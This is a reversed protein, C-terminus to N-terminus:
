PAIQWLLHTSGTVITFTVSGGNLTSSTISGGSGTPMEVTVGDITMEVSGTYVAWTMSHFDGANFTYTAPNIGGDDIQLQQPTNYNGAGNAVTVNKLCCIATDIQRLRKALEALSSM